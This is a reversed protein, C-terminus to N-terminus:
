FSEALKIILDKRVRVPMFEYEWNEYSQLDLKECIELDISKDEEIDKEIEEVSTALKLEEEVDRKYKWAFLEFYYTDFIKKSTELYEVSGYYGM